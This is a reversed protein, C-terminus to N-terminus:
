SLMLLMSDELSVSMTTVCCVELVVCPRMLIKLFHVYVCVNVMVNGIQHDKNFEKIICAHCETTKLDASVRLVGSDSYPVSYQFCFYYFHNWNFLCFSM